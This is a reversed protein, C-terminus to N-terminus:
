AKAASQDLGRQRLDALDEERERRLLEANDICYQVAEQVAEVPLDYDIAVEPLSRPEVGTTQRYLTEARLNRGKVFFQKYNSGERPALFRYNNQNTM